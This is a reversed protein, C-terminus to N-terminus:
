PRRVRVEPADGDVKLVEILPSKGPPRGQGKKKEDKRVLSAEDASSEGTETKQLYMFSYM